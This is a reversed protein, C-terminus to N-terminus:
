NNIKEFIIKRDKVKAVICDGSKINGRLIEESLTDELEKQIARKLPRAGYELELGVESIFITAEDSIDLDINMAKLREILRKSLIKVIESLNEHNLSHFVITDDIRNLFEPKFNNKLELMINDRMKEYNTKEIDDISINKSFGLSKQKTTKTAGLNSTMIIITNKFDVTRGKSDTLRGDDLIQLLINFVDNHAKEIEDFLIVSYPNRKVRETLQGGEDHGVYGPPSGILRSVSHKEM